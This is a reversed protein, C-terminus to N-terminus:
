RFNWSIESLHFLNLILAASSVLITIKYRIYLSNEIQTDEDKTLHKTYLFSFSVFNVNDTVTEIRNNVSM